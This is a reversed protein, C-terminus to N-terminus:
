YRQVGPCGRPIQHACRSGSGCRSPPTLGSGQLRDGQSHRTHLCGRVRAGVLRLRSGIDRYARFMWDSALASIKSVRSPSASGSRSTKSRRWRNSCSIASSASDESAVAVGPVIWCSSPRHSSEAAATLSFRTASTKAAQFSRPLCSALSVRRAPASSSSPPWSRRCPCPARMSGSAPRWTASPEARLAFDAPLMRSGKSRLGSARRSMKSRVSWRSPIRASIDKYATSVSVLLFGFLSKPRSRRRRPVDGLM